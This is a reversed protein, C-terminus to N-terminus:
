FGGDSDGGGSGIDELYHFLICNDEFSMIGCVLCHAESLMESAWQTCNRRILGADRGATRRTAKAEADPIGCHGAIDGSDSARHYDV